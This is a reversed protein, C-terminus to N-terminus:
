TFLISAYDKRENVIFWDRWSQNWNYEFDFLVVFRTIERPRIYKFHLFNKLAGGTYSSLFYLNIIERWQICEQRLHEEESTFSTLLIDNGEDDYAEDLDNELKDRLERSVRNYM